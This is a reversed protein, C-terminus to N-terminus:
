RDPADVPDGNDAAAPVPEPEPRPPRLSSLLLLVGGATIAIDAVNFIPWWQLDIFDVVGGRLWGPERFLRDLLNGVAGGVILGVSLPYLRSTSRGISVLLGVVVLLAVVGIFPGLGSGQSFAMGSNFALNFRLSGIVDITEGDALANLAWQKTLQDVLVVAVAVVLPGRLSRAPPRM